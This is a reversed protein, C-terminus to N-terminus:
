GRSIASNERSPPGRAGDRLRSSSSVSRSVSTKASTARPRDLPLDGPLEDDGLLGDLRM